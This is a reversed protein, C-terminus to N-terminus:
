MESDRARSFREEVVVRWRKRERHKKKGDLEEYDARLQSERAHTSFMAFLFPCRDSDQLRIKAIKKMGKKKSLNLSTEEREREEVM